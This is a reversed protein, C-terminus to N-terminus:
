LPLLFPGLPLLDGGDYKSSPAGPLTPAKAYIPAQFPHVGVADIYFLYRVALPSLPLKTLTIMDASAAAIPSSMWCLTPGSCNGLVEFGRAGVSTVLEGHGLGGVAVEVAGGRLAVSAVVPDVAHTSRRATRWQSAVM